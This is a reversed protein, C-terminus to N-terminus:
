LEIQKWGVISTYFQIKEYSNGKKYLFIVDCIEDKDSNKICSNQKINVIDLYSVNYKTSFARKVIIEKRKIEDSSAKELKQVTDFTFIAGSFAIIIWVAKELVDKRSSGYMYILISISGFVFYLFYNFALPIETNM